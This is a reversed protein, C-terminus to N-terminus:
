NGLKPTANYDCRKNVSNQETLNWTAQATLSLSLALFSSHETSHQTLGLACCAPTLSPNWAPGAPAEPATVATGTAPRPSSPASRETCHCRAAPRSDTQLRRCSARLTAHQDRWSQVVRHWLDSRMRPDILPRRGPSSAPVSLRHVPCHHLSHPLPTVSCRPSPIPRTAWPCQSLQHMPKRLCVCGSSGPLYEALLSKPINQAFLLNFLYKFAQLQRWNHRWHKSATPQAAPLADPRYFSLPPTSTLYDTGLITCVQMHGLQHWQWESDRAETFDLNTKCIWIPKVKRTGACRPLGPFFPGNFTHTHTHTHKGRWYKNWFLLKPVYPVTTACTEELRM